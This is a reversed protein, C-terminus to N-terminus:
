LANIPKEGKAFAELNLYTIKIIKERSTDTMWAIHPTIICNDTEFLLNDRKPPETELVDLAAVRIKGSKLAVALDFENILAGRATNIIITGDNMKAISNRNILGKTSETLPCHLSIIDSWNCLYDFDVFDIGSINNDQKNGIADINSNLTNSSPPHPTCVLVNMSFAQAIGAVKKGINGYGVIGITKGALSIQPAVSFCFDESKHWEGAKTADNHKGVANVAELLLAFTFQVVSSTSYAPVNTVTLNKSKAYEVDINNYGTALVGIFKLEPCSDIVNKDIVCKSTLVADADKIRSIIDANETRPYYFLEGLSLFDAWNLDDRSITYGDLVVIKM